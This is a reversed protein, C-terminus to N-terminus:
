PPTSACRRTGCGSPARATEEARPRGRRRWCGRASEIKGKLAGAAPGRESTEPIGSLYSLAEQLDGREYAKQASALDSTFRTERIAEV